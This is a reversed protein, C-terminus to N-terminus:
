QPESWALVFRVQEDSEPSRRRENATGERWRAIQPLAERPATGHRILWCGVVTGTRGVGAYCHLYVNKGRALADDILDLTTVMGDPTPCGFDRVPRRRCELGVAYPPLGYEDEQTLDLFFDIGAGRIAALRALPYEGALFRGPVVWYSDPTPGTRENVLALKV